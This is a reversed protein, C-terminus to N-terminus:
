CKGLEVGDLVAKEGLYCARPAARREAGDGIGAAPRCVGHCLLPQPDHGLNHVFGILGFSLDTLSELVSEGSLDDEVLREMIPVVEYIGGYRRM